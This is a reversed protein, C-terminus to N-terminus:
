RDLMDDGSPPGCRDFDELGARLDILGRSEQEFVHGRRVVLRRGIPISGEPQGAFSIRDDPEIARYGPSKVKAQWKAFSLTRFKLNADLTKARRVELELVRELWGAENTVALPKTRDAHYGARKCNSGIERVVKSASLALYGRLM